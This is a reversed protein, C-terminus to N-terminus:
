HSVSDVNTKESGEIYVQVKNPLCVISQGVKDIIGTKECIRDPCVVDSVYVGNRDATIDIFKGSDLDIHIHRKENLDKMNIRYYEKGEVAIVISKADTDKYILKIGFYSIVSLLVIIILLIDGKKMKM